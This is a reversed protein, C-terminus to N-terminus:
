NSKNKMVHSDIFNLIPRYRKGILGTAEVIIEILLLLLVLISASGWLTAKNFMVAAISFIGSIAYILLVTQRHSYGLHLLCHHLHFKDPASLPKKQIIRRLIAFTTDMIPVGLIILPLVISFITVNKFLGMLSLTSIMYGLFLSGTDGMFIKAPHFNFFLFGLTSGLLILTMAGVLYNGMSLAMGTITILAISSVGAALGDLGDILNIANTVGVIWLITLPISLAGFYIFEGTPLQIFDIQLGGLVAIVAALIQALLKMKASLEFKDDLMGVVAILLSGTIIHWITGLEKPLFIVLGIYFSLLIAMGGMRPMPKEHVKRYNPKDVINWRIALRIIIPTLSLAVILSVIFAWILM